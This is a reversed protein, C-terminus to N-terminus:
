YQRKVENYIKEARAELAAARTELDANYAEIEACKLRYEKELEANLGDAQANWARCECAKKEYEKIYVRLKHGRLGDDDYIPLPKKEIRPYPKPLEKKASRLMRAEERLEKVENERSGYVKEKKNVKRENVASDSM